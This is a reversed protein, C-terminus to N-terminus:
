WDMVSVDEGGAITALASLVEASLNAKLTRVSGDALVANCEGPMRGWNWESAAHHIGFARGKGVPTEDDPDIGRLTATGASPWPGTEHHTELFLLTNSTGDKIDELRVVRDFGFAGARKDTLPLTPADSGVGAVAVYTTHKASEPTPDIPCHYPPPYIFHGLDQQDSWGKALDFKKYRENQELYPLLTVFVSLRDTPEKASGVISGGPLAESKPSTEVYSHCAMGIQKLNNGCSMRAAAGRVRRNYPLMFALVIVIISVVVLLEVLKFGRRRLLSHTM